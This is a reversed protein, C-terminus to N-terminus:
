LRNMQEGMYRKDRANLGDVVYKGHGPAGISRYISINLTLLFITM